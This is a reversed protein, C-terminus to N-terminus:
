TSPTTQILGLIKEARDMANDNTQEKNSRPFLMIFKGDFTLEKDDTEIGIIPPKPYQKKFGIWFNTM